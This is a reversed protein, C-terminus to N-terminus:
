AKLPATVERAADMGDAGLGQEVRRSREAKNDAPLHVFDGTKTGVLNRPATEPPRV